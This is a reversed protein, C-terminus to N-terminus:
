QFYEEMTLGSESIKQAYEKGVYRFNWPSFKIGTIEEKGKPYRLIYGFEYCHAILWKYAATEEFEVELEDVHDTTCLDVALGLQHESAGPICDIRNAEIEGYEDQYYKQLKEQMEYNRYGSVLYLSIGDNSAASFMDELAYAAECRLQQVDYQAVNVNVLDSPTYDSNITLTKNVIRILSENSSVDYSSDDPLVSPTLTPTSTIMASPKSTISPTETSISEMTSKTNDFAKTKGSVLLFFFSVTLIGSLVM